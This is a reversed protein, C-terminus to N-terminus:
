GRRQLMMVGDAQYNEVASSADIGAIRLLKHWRRALWRTDCSGSIGAIL